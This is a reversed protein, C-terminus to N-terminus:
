LVMSYQFIYSANFKKTKQLVRTAGISFQTPPGHTNSGKESLGRLAKWVNKIKGRRRM